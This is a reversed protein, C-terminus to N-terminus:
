EYIMAVVQRVANEIDVAASQSVLLVSEQEAPDLAVSDGSAQGGFALSPKIDFDIGQSRWSTATGPSRLTAVVREPIYVKISWGALSKKVMWRVVEMVAMVLTTRGDAGVDCVRYVDDQISIPDSIRVGAGLPDLLNRLTTDQEEALLQVDATPLILQLHHPTKQLDKICNRMEQRLIYGAPVKPDLATPMLLDPAHPVIEKPLVSPHGGRYFHSCGGVAAEEQSCIEGVLMVADMITSLSCSQLSFICEDQAVSIPGYLRGMVKQFSPILSDVVGRHMGNGLEWDHVGVLLHSIPCPVLLYLLWLAFSGSRSALSQLLGELADCVRSLTGSLGLVVDSDEDVSTFEHPIVYTDILHKVRLPGLLNVFDDGRPLHHATFVLRIDVMPDSTTVAELYQRTHYHFLASAQKNFDVQIYEKSSTNDAKQWSSASSSQPVLLLEDRGKSPFGGQVALNDWGLTEAQNMWSPEVSDDTSLPSKTQYEWGGTPTPVSGYDTGPGDVALKNSRTTKSAIQGNVDVSNFRINTQRCSESMTEAPSERRSTSLHGDRAPSGTQSVEAVHSLGHSDAASLKPDHVGAALTSTAQKLGGADQIRHVPSTPPTSSSPSAPCSPSLPLPISAPQDQAQALLARKAAVDLAWLTAMINEKGGALPRLLPLPLKRSHHQALQGAFTRRTSQQPLQPVM